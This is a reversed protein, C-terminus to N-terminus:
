GVETTTVSLPNRSGGREGMATEKRPTGLVESKYGPSVKVELGM